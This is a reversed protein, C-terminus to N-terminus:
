LAKSIGTVKGVHLPHLSIRSKSIVLTCVPKCSCFGLVPHQAKNETKITVHSIVSM